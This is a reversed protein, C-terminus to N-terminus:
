KVDSTLRDFKILISSCNEPQFGETEAKIMFEDSFNCILGEMFCKGLSRLIATTGQGEARFFCGADKLKLGQNLAIKIGRSFFYRYKMNSGSWSSEGPFFGFVRKPRIDMVIESLFNDLGVMKWCKAIKGKMEGEYKYIPENADVIGYGASLIFLRLTGNAILMKIREKDLSQYFRGSYLDLAPTPLSGYDILPTMMERGKLFKTKDFRATALWSNSQDAAIKSATKSKCCPIFCITESSM